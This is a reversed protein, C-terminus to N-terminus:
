SQKRQQHHAQLVSNLEKQLRPMKWAKNRAAGVVGWIADITPHMFGFLETLVDPELTCDVKSIKLMQGNRVVIGAVPQRDMYGVLTSGYRIEGTTTCDDKSVIKITFKDMTTTTNNTSTAMNYQRKNWIALGTM